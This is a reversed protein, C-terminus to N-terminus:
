CKLVLIGNMKFPLYSKKNIQEDHFIDWVKEKSMARSFKRNKNKIQFGLSKM